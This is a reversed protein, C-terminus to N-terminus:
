SLNEEPSRGVVVSAVERQIGYYKLLLAVIFNFCFCGAFFYLTLTYGSTSERLWSVIFPGAIGALAWATLIRGHIASLKKTGFIDSLYAPM